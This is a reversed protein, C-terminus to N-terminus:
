RLREAALDALLAPLVADRTADVVIHGSDIERMRFTEVTEEGWPEMDAVTVRADARGRFASLPVDLPERREYRYTESLMSDVRLLPVVLAFLDPNAM